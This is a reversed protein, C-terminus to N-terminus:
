RLLEPPDDIAGLDGVGAPACTLEVHAIRVAVAQLEVGAQLQLKVDIRKGCCGAWRTQSRALGWRDRALRARRRQRAPVDSFGRREVLARTAHIRGPGQASAAHWPM